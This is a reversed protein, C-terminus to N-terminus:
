LPIVVINRSSFGATGSATKYKMTFVNSGATLGTIVVTRSLTSFPDGAINTGAVVLAEDDSAARTTAGSVDFSARFFGATNGVDSMNSTICVIVSTGTTLTVTPGVTALDTYTTSTTSQSTLVTNGAIENKQVMAAFSDNLQQAELVTAAVFTTLAM